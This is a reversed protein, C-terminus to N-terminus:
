RLSSVTVASMILPRQLSTFLSYYILYLSHPSINKHRMLVAADHLYKQPISLSQFHSTVSGESADIEKKYHHYACIHFGLSFALMENASVIFKERMEIKDGPLSQSHTPTKLVVMRRRLWYALFGAQKFHNPVSDSGDYVRTCDRKWLGFADELRQRSCGVGCAFRKSIEFYNFQIAECFYDLESKGGGIYDPHGTKLYELFEPQFLVLRSIDDVSEMSHTAKSRRLKQPTWFLYAYLAVPM